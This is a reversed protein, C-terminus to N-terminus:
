RKALAQKLALYLDRSPEGTETIGANKQFNKIANRTMPGLAGDPKDKLLKLDLLAQQIARVQEVKDNPWAVEPANSTSSLTQGTPASPASSSASPLAPSPLQGPRQPSTAEVIQKIERQGMDQARQLEVPTMVRRLNESRRAANKALPTEKNDHSRREFQEAMGYWAVATANDKPAADGQEYIDGLAFMSATMGQHAAALLLRVAEGGDRAVGKGERLMLALNHEAVPLGKDSARRYWDAARTSSREVVFGSEYMVGVNFAAEPSGLEAARLMWGAGAQPDKAVGVGLILRRSLEAMALLNHAEAQARLQEIPWAAPDGTPTAEAAGPKPASPAPPAMEAASPPPPPETPAPLSVDSGFAPPRAVAVNEKKDGPAAAERRELLSPWKLAIFAFAAVVVVAALLGLLARSSSAPAKRAASKDAASKDAVSKDSLSSMGPVIVSLARAPSPAARHRVVILTTLLLVAGAQHMSALAIDVGSLITAVGLCFQVLVMAGAAYTEPRRARWAMALVGLALLKALWRHIFQVTTGNESINIWWPSRDFMGPPIWYGSMTPFTNHSLGARLGAMLAGFTMVVFVFAMLGTAERRTKRDDRRSSQPGLELILWVTYAYLAVAALLHAALRYHSVSPRDVLGSAVMAWGLVGQLGGLVLLAVLRPKLGPSLRGSLWFWLLPVAVVLGILRGWLRHIFELWYIQKFQAVTFDSNVLRGQPSALYEKLEAQWAQETIPPVVGTVPKWEVMSLGSETLRTLAGLVIMVFIMAAVVILWSRVIPPVTKM